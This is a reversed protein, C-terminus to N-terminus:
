VNAGLLDPGMLPYCCFGGLCSQLFMGSAPCGPAQWPQFGPPCRSIETDKPFEWPCVCTTDSNCKQAEAALVGSVRM